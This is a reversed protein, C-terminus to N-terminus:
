NGPSISTVPMDHRREIMHLVIWRLDCVEDAIEGYARGRPPSSLPTSALLANARECQDRYFGFVLAAPRSTTFPADDDGGPEEPWPLDTASGTAVHQFWYREAFGLHELLGLPTWGSPVVSARLADEGLGGVIARVSARQADLFTILARNELDQSEMQM